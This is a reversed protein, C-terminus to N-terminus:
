SVNRSCPIQEYICLISYFYSGPLNLYHKSKPDRDVPLIPINQYTLDVQYETTKYTKMRALSEFMMQVVLTGTSLWFLYDTLSNLHCLINQIM